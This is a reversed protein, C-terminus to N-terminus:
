TLPKHRIRHWRGFGHQFRCPQDQARRVGFIELRPGCDSLIFFHHPVEAPHLATECGPIVEQSGDTGPVYEAEV